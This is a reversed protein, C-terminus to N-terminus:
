TSIWIFNILNHTIIGPILSRSRDYIWGLVLGVILQMSLTPWYFTLQGASGIRFAHTAWFLLSTILWGWGTKAGFIQWPENFVRRLGAQIVGRYAFEEAIGPMTLLYLIYETSIRSTTNSEPLMLRIVIGRLVVFVVLPVIVIGCDRLAQSNIHRNFGIPLWKSFVLLVILAFVFEFVMTQWPQRLVPLTRGFEVVMLNFVFFLGILGLSAFLYKKNNAPFKARSKEGELTKYLAWLIFPLCVILSPIAVQLASSIWSM